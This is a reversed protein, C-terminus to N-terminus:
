FNSNKKINRIRRINEKVSKNLLCFSSFPLFLDFSSILCFLSIGVKRIIFPSITQEARWNLSWNWCTAFRENDEFCGMGLVARCRRSGEDSMGRHCWQGCGPYWQHRVESRWYCPWVIVDTVPYSDDDMKHLVNHASIVNFLLQHSWRVWWAEDQLIVHWPLRVRGYAGPLKKRISSTSEWVSSSTSTDEVKRGQWRLSLTESCPAVRFDRMSSAGLSKSLARAGRLCSISLKMSWLNRRKSISVIFARIRDRLRPNCVNAGTRLVTLIWKENM